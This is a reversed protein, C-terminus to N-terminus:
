GVGPEGDFSYCGGMWGRRAPPAWFGLIEASEHAREKACKLAKLRGGPRRKDGGSLFAHFVKRCLELDNSDISNCVCGSRVKGQCPIASLNFNPHYQRRAGPCPLAKVSLIGWIEGLIAGPATKQGHRSLNLASDATLNPNEARRGM